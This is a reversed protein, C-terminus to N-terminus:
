FCPFALKYFSAIDEPHYLGFQYATIALLCLTGYAKSLPPPLTCYNFCLSVIFPLSPWGFEVYCNHNNVLFPQLIFLDNMVLLIPVLYWPLDCLCVMIPVALRCSSANVTALGILPHFCSLDLKIFDCSCADVKWAHQGAGRSKWQWIDEDEQSELTTNIVDQKRTTM